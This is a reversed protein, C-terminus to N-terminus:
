YLNLRLDAECHYLHHLLSWLVFQPKYLLLRNVLFHLYLETMYLYMMWLLKNLHLIISLVVLSSHLLFSFILYLKYEAMKQKSGKTRAQNNQHYDESNM